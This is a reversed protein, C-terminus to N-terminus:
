KTVHAPRHRRIYASPVCIYTLFQIRIFKLVSVRVCLCAWMRMFVQQVRMFVLRTRLSSDVYANVCISLQDEVTEFVNQGFSMRFINRGRRLNRTEM